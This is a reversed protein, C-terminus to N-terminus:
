DLTLDLDGVAIRFTDGTTVPNATITGVWLCNGAAAADWLTFHTYDETGAVSTWEVLADNSITGGTASGFSVAKRTTEVAANASGDEGPDGVHLKIYATSQGAYATGNFVLDLLRNELFNSISM